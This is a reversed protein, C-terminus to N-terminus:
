HATKAGVNVETMAPDYYRNVVRAATHVILASQVCDKSFEFREAHLKDLLMLCQFKLLLTPSSFPFLQEVLIENDFSLELCHDVM